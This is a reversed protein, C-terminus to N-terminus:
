IFVFHSENNNILFCIDSNVLFHFEFQLPDIAQEHMPLIYLVNLGLFVSKGLNDEIPMTRLHTTCEDQTTFDNVNKTM